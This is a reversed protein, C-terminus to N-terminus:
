KKRDMTLIQRGANWFNQSRKKVLITEPSTFLTGSIEAPLFEQEVFNQDYQHAYKYDKAYGLEKMLQTPRQAFTASRESGKTGYWKWRPM